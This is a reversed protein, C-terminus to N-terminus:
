QGTEKLYAALKNDSPVRPKLLAQTRTEEPKSNHCMFCDIKVAAYDHCVRCFHKPDDVGVPRGDKGKVAHCTVCTKLSAQIKRNGNRMTLDRDHQLLRMHNTRWFLNGEPHPQGTAKPIAPGLGQAYAPSLGLGGLLMLLVLLRKM